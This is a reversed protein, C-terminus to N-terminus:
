KLMIMKRVKSFGEVELRYFYLGSPVMEGFQNQGHWQIQYNGAPQTKEVLTCITQGLLNFVVLKVEAPKPLYYRICTQSNFPNPYNVFLIPHKTLQLDQQFIATAEVPHLAIDDLFWGAFSNEADSVFRFRIRVDTFGPGCFQTLERFDEKWRSSNGTYGEGLVQWTKGSDASAEVYGFDRDKEIIHRTWYTLKANQLQSLNFSTHYEIWSYCNHPYPPNACSALCYDGTFAQQNSLNWIGQINWKYLNYEFDDITESVVLTTQLTDNSVNEDQDFQSIFLIEYENREGPYWSKFHCTKSKFPKLTDVTAVDSYVPVGNNLIQCSIETNIATEGGINQIITEPIFNAFSNINSAMKASMRPQLDFDHASPKVFVSDLFRLRARAADEPVGHRGPFMKFTHPINLRLLNEHLPENFYWNGEQTADFYIVIEDKYIEPNQLLAVPDNNPVWRGYFVSDIVAGTSDLPFDIQQSPINPNIINPSFVRSWAIWTLSYYGRIQSFDYPPGSPFEELLYPIEYLFGYISVAGDHSAVAGFKDSNRIALRMGGEGGMSFGGIARNERYASIHYNSENLWNILDVSIVDGYNGNLISNQYFHANLMDALEPCKIDPWVVILPSIEGSVILENLFLKIYASYNDYNSGGGGHLDVLMPYPTGTESYHPPLYIKVFIGKELTPSYFIDDVIQGEQSLVVTVAVLATLFILLSNRM